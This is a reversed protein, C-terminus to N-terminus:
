SYLLPDISKDKQMRQRWYPVTCVLLRGTGEYVNSLKQGSLLYSIWSRTPRKLRLTVGTTRAVAYPGDLVVREDNLEIEEVPGDVSLVAQGRGRLTTKYWLLGQGAWFSTWLRERHIGLQVEGDSAWFCRHELIWKEDGRVKFLHYGGFTSDLYVEGTGAYHPRIVSEDSFMSVWLARLSPTPVDMSIEGDMRLLAGRETRVDDSDLGIRIWRCGESSKIDFTAM